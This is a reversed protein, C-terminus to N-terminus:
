INEMESIIEEMCNLFFEVQKKEITLAPDIRFVEHGPRKVLIINRKLLEDNIAEAFKKM